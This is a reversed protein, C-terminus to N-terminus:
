LFFINTKNLLKRYYHPQVDIPFANTPKLNGYHEAHQRAHHNPFNFELQNWQYPIKPQHSYLALLEKIRQSHVCLTLASLILYLSNM